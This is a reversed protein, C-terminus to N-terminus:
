KPRRIKRLATTAAERVEPLSDAAESTLAPVAASADPGIQGLNSIAYLRHQNPTKLFRLMEPVAEKAYGGLQGLARMADKVLGYDDEKLVAVLAPVVRPDVPRMTGLGTAAYCREKSDTDDSPKSAPLRLLFDVVRQQKTRVNGLVLIADGQGPHKSTGAIRLLQEVAASDDPGASAVADCAWGALDPDDLVAILDPVAAKAKPGIHKLAIIAQRRIDAGGRKLQNRLAPVAAAAKPGIERIADFAHVQLRTGAHQPSDIIKVLAPVARSGMLPLGNWAVWSAAEDDQGHLIELLTPLAPEGMRGLAEAVLIHLADYEGKDKNHLRFAAKLRPIARPGEGAVTAIAKQLDKPGAASLTRWKEEDTLGDPRLRAENQEKAEAGQRDDNTVAVKDRRHCGALLSICCCLFVFVLSRMPTERNGQTGQLLLFHQLLRLWSAM